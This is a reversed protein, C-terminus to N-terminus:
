EQLFLNNIWQASKEATFPSKCFNEKLDIGLMSTWDNVALVPLDLHNFPWSSKLVIPISGLYMAEWTRHCDPGNGPPSIVYRSRRVLDRYERPTVPDTVIYANDVHNSVELAAARVLPNTHLSFCFLYDIDKGTEKSKRYDRVVGNRLLWNDELGIPIPTVLNLDGLWNVSYINHFHKSAKAYIAEEPILDGSHVYVSIKSCDLEQNLPAMEFFDQALNVPVFVRFPFHSVSLTQATVLNLYSGDFIHDCLSRITGGSFYPYSNRSRPMRLRRLASRRLTELDYPTDRLFM